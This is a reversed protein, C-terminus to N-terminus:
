PNKKQNVFDEPYGFRNTYRTKVEVFVIENQWEDLAILDIEGFRAHYNQELIKYGKNLLYKKAENEGIKGLNKSFM